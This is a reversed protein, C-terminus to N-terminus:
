APPVTVATMVLGGAALWRGEFSALRRGDAITGDVLLRAVFTGNPHLTVAAGDFGLWRRALPYWAKYVSEKASFLLRDGSVGTSTVADVGVLDDPLAIIKLVGEPLPGDLEADIGVSALNAPRAVAAARYGECHTMSGIVQAPWQPAGHEDPVLPVPAIRLRALADRACSRVTTFENRRKDVARAIAAAEEPFLTIDLRDTFTEVVSTCRPLLTEIM